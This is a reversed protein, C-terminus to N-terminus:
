RHLLCILASLIWVALGALIFLSLNFALWVTFASCKALLITYSGEYTLPFSVSLGTYTHTHESMQVAHICCREIVVSEIQRLKYSAFDIEDGYQTKCNRM